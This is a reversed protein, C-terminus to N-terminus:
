GLSWLLRYYRIKEADPAIGYADYLPEEWGPGYNWVTSWSAVALDAWRDGVGLAGLDVHGTCRGDDGILTNPACADGHCVVLDEEPGARLEELAADLSLGTFEFDFVTDELAGAVTRAEAARRRDDRRWSFPCAAVELADHLDRLGEGIARVAVAPDVRWRPAVANDGTLARSVFWAGEEDAGTAVVEPVTVARSAWGLRAVEGDVDLGSDVPSWKVYLARAGEGVRFTLGGLENRWACPASAAGVVDRL